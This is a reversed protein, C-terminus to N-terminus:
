YTKKVECTIKDASGGNGYIEYVATIRYTGTSPLQFTHSGTYSFNYITDVWQNNPQNIDVSKWFLGLFRKEIKTTIIAKTTTNQIGVYRNSITIIGSSSVSASTQASVVNNYLPAVTHSSDITAAHTYPTSMIILFLILIISLNRKLIKNM